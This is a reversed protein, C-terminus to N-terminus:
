TEKREDYGPLPRAARPALDVAVAEWDTGRWGATHGGDVVVVSGTMYSADASLLFAIVAAIEDPHAPRDLAIRSRSRSWRDRDTMHPDTNRTRVFGPAVANVRVGYSALAVGLSRALAAVAGKSTNYVVQGEEGMFSATSATLVMARDARSNAMARASALALLYMGRVNTRMTRDFLDLPADFVEETTGFGANNVLYDVSGFADLALRVVRDATDDDGIDAALTVVSAGHEERLSAAASELPAM